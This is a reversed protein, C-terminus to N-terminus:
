IDSRNKRRKFRQAISARKNRWWARFNENFVLPYAIACIALAPPVDLISHQKLFVTSLAILVTCVTFAIRWGTTRFLKSNWAAASVAVSGIVHISPCVNTKTDFDYFGRMFETLFNSRGLADIDPRLEQKTPFFLYIIITIGYTLMIYYTYNKFTETDFFLSYVYMGVLYAFWFMYPIVFLECFPIMDDVVSYVTVYGETRFVELSYFCLGFIPWFLLLLVYRYEGFFLSKLTFRRFDVPTLKVGGKAKPNM